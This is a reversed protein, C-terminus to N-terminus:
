ARARKRLVFALVTLAVLALGVAGGVAAFVVASTCTYATSYDGNTENVVCFANARAAYLPNEILLHFKENITAVEAAYEEDTAAAVSEEGLDSPGSHFIHEIFLKKPPIYM